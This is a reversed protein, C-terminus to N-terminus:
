NAAQGDAHTGMRYKIDYNVIFDLEEHALDYHEALLCDVQDIVPKFNHVTIEPSRYGPRKEFLITNASYAARLQDVLSHAHDQRLRTSRL